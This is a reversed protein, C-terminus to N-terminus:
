EKRHWEHWCHGVRACSGCWELQVVDIIDSMCVQRSALHYVFRYDDFSFSEKPSLLMEETVDEVPIKDLWDTDDREMADVKRRAEQKQRKVVDDQSVTQKKPPTKVPLQGKRLSGKGEKPGASVRTGLSSRNPQQVTATSLRALINAAPASPEGGESVGRDRPTSKPQDQAASASRSRSPLEPITISPSVQRLQNLVFETKAEGQLHGAQAVLAKLLEPDPAALDKTSKPRRIKKKSDKDKTSDKSPSRTLGKRGKDAM